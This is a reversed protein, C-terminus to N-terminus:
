LNTVFRNNKRRANWLDALEQKKREEERAAEAEADDDKIPM